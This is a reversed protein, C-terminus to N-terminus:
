KLFAPPLFLPTTWLNYDQGGKGLYGISSVVAPRLQEKKLIHQSQCLLDPCQGAYHFKCLRGPEFKEVFITWQDKYEPKFHRERVDHLFTCKEDVCGRFLHFRCPMGKRKSKM